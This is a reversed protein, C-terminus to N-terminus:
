NHEKVTLLIDGKLSKVSKRINLKTPLYIHKDKDIGKELQNILIRVAIKGMEETQQLITTMPTSLFASYPQEDFSILSFDGPVTLKEDTIAKLAGLSILNSLAFIATPRKKLNLLMKMEIYGNQMGFNDGVILDYNIPINYQEHADLYGQVRKDNPLTGPLGQICAIRNHGSDILYAVADFAGQYNDSAVFPLPTNPFIRDILVLPIGREYLKLLHSADQGVPFIILGDVKRSQLMKLSQIELQTSDDSDCLIISYNYKRAEREVNRAITSFFPNSIDPIVLGFTFTRKLRLGQALSNPSFELEAATMKILEETEKSIRYKEAMGNLVRSVTSVSLDLKDAITKLTPRVKKRETTSLRKLM